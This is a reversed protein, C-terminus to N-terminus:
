FYSTSPKGSHTIISMCTSRLYKAPAAYLLAWTGVSALMGWPQHPHYAGFLVGNALWDWRGFTRNMKPLLVGRFLLEEGLINFWANVAFVALVGV